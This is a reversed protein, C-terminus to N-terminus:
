YNNAAGKNIQIPTPNQGTSGHLFASRKVLKFADLHNNIRYVHYFVIHM